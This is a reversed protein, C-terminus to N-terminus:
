KKRHKALYKKNETEFNLGKKACKNKLKEIRAQEILANNEEEERKAAEVPDIWEEGNEAARQKKREMLGHTVAALNKEVKIQSVMVALVIGAIAEFGLFCWTIASQCQASQTNFVGPLVEYPATYGTKSLMMNFISTAIGASVTAIITYVSGSIGDVRFGKEYEINDLIDAILSMFIYAIPVYGMNKIFQGILVVIMNQPFIFCILSGVSYIVLGVATINKKGFKKALPWVILMGIGMPLGGLANVLTQTIGDSYTGLVWNCYYPLAINRCNGCINFILYFLMILVWYKDTVMARIQKSLPVKEIASANFDEETVRERTYYYMLIILPFALVAFISMVFIWKDKDIGIAPMVAMPIILAVIIGTGAVNAINNFVSLQTRQMTNRSANPVLLNSSIFFMTYAVACYFNYSLMVWIVKGTESMEPVTFLLIGSITILPASILIYPRLKGQKTKTRDIVIGMIVNTIADLIKSVIPYMVLFGGNLWVSAGMVDTYYVNLYQAVLAQFLFPGLPAFLYGIWKESKSVNRTKIKSNLFPKDWFSRKMKEMIIGVVYIKLLRLDFGVTKGRQM